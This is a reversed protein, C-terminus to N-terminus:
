IGGPNDRNADNRRWPVTTCRSCANGAARQCIRQCCVSRRGAYTGTASIGKAAGTVLAVKDALKSM